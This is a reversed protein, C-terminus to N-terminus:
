VSFLRFPRVPRMGAREDARWAPINAENVHLTVAAGGVCLEDLLSRVARACIGQGRQAPLVYTGGLQAGFRGCRSVDILFCVLGDDGHAVRLTGAELRALVRAEMAELDIRDASIGLDEALMGLDMQVLQDLEARMPRHVALRPGPSAGDAVYLRQDYSVRFPPSGMGLWAADASERPGVMILAGGDMAVRQGVAECGALAGTPCFMLAAEGMEPRRVLAAAVLRGIADRAGLWRDPAEGPASQGLGAAALESRHLLYANGLPDEGLLAALEAATDARDQLVSPSLDPSPCIHLTTARM